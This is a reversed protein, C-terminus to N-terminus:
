GRKRRPHGKTGDRTATKARTPGTVDREGRNGGAKQLVYIIPFSSSLSFCLLLTYLFFFVFLM